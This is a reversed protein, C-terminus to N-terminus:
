FDPTVQEAESIVFRSCLDQYDDPLPRPSRMASRWHWRFSGRVFDAMERTDCLPPFAVVFLASQAREWSKWSSDDAPSAVRTTASGEKAESGEKERKVESDEEEQGVRSSEKQEAKIWFRAEIIRDSEFISWCLETLASEMIRLMQGHFVGLREAENLLMAYFILQPLEPLKFRRTAEEAMALEYSSCLAQFDKPLPSPPFAVGRWDWEFYYAIYKAMERLSRM